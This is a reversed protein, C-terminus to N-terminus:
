VRCRGPHLSWNLGRGRAGAGGRWGGGGGVMGGGQGGARCDRGARAHYGFAVEQGM